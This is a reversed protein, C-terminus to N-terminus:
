IEGLVVQITQLLEDRTIESYEMDFWLIKGEADLVYIRPLRENAVQAFLAGDPDLFIPLVQKVKVEDEVEVEGALADVNEISDGENIAIVQVGKDAYPMAVDGALDALIGGAFVQTIETSGLTWFCVVTLKEGYLARLPHLQGDLGPLEAEPMTQGVFLVCTARLADTLRVEPITPPPPPEVEPLTSQDPDIVDPNTGSSTDPDTTGGGNGTAPDGDGNGCGVIGITLCFAVPVVWLRKDIRM